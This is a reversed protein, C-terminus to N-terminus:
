KVVINRWYDLTDKLTQNFPINPEWGTLNKMKAFNCVLEPNDSPRMLNKDQEIQIKKSSFALLTQLVEQITHSVGSGINYVDGTKGKELILDYGRVMDRVDTFDRKADLNGVHMVPEKIGVEIEAIQKAFDPVVFNAAQRPGIHNFPRVRIIQLKYSIYYQLALYDQAIKSVAYPNAPNFPTNEDVPLNEPAVIGYVDASSTVLVKTGLLDSKKIAEFLAVEASVNNTITEAPNKFSLSPAALAALHFVVDPRVDAIVDAVLDADLLNVQLLHIKDQITSLNGTQTTLTTGFIECAEKAIFYDALFSGAFGSIGTIFIKKM